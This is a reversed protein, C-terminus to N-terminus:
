QLLQKLYDAYAKGGGPRYGTEAIFNENADLIIVTPYGTVGYKQKLQTNQQAVDAPLQQNMPFDIDVFVFSNGVQSVFDPSSFIEQQMKKCWGCWDSGTFFMLIPKHNKAADQVAQAYNTYWKIQSVTAPAQAQAAQNQNPSPTPAPANDAFAPSVGCTVISFCIAVLFRKMM